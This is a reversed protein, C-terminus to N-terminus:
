PEFFLDNLVLEGTAPDVMFNRKAYDLLANKSYNLALNSLEWLAGLAGNHEVTCRALQALRIVSKHRLKGICAGIEVYDAYAKPYHKKTLRVYRPAEYVVSTDLEGTHELQPVHVLFEESIHCRVEVLMEKFPDQGLILVSDAKLPHEYVSSYKGKGICSLNGMDTGWTLM